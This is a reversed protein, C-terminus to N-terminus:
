SQKPASTKGHAEVEDGEDSVGPRETKGELRASLKAHGEVEDAKDDNAAPRDIKADDSM